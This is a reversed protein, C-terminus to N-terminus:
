AVLFAKKAKIAFPWMAITILTSEVVSIIIQSTLVPTEHLAGNSPIVMEYVHHFPYVVNALPVLAFTINETDIKGASDKPFTIDMAKGYNHLVLILIFFGLYTLFSILMAISSKPIAALMWNSFTWFMIHIFTFAIGAVLIREIAISGQEWHGKALFAIAIGFALFLVTIYYNIAEVIAQATVVHHKKHLMFAVRNKDVTSRQRFTMLMRLFTFLLLSIGMFRQSMNLIYSGDANSTILVLLVSILIPILSLVLNQVVASPTITYKVETSITKFQNKMNTLLKM